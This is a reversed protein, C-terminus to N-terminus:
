SQVEKKGTIYEYIMSKKYENLEEIKQQKISILNEIESCKKDLFAVISQQEDFNPILVQTLKLIGQSISYVKVGRVNCQIQARFSKSQFFYAIFRPIINNVELRAIITHYGAFTEVDSNLYTFNGSGEVDESTDAFIFDGNKLLSKESTLRYNEDVCKLKHITPNVEFGYKSHIEGYNVCPIGEEQLNEKTITLGKRFSAIKDLRLINWHYPVKGIWEICSEKLPISKNLGKCVCETIVSQKYGKLEEIMKQQLSILNDIDACKEELFDVIQKQKVYPPVPFDMRGLDSMSVKLRCTNVRDNEKEISMIGRGLSFFVKKITSTKFLFDYYSVLYKKQDSSFLVYYVPSVCGFYKSIGVAGVIVNMSNMVIDNPYALKYQTLDEKFRDKNTTKEAYLTVGKDISLSLIEESIVPNNKQNRVQLIFKLPRIGWNNPINGLWEIGSDKM